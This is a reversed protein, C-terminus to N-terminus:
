NADYSHSERKLGAFDYGVADLGHSASLMVVCADGNGATVLIHGAAYHADCSMITRGDDDVTAGQSASEAFSEASCDVDVSALFNM